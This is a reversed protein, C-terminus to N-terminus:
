RYAKRKVLHKYRDLVEDTVSKWSRNLTNAANAGAKKIQAPSSILEQLKAACAEVSNDILFGNENDIIITAITSDNILVSPTHLAAAEHVVIAWTDYISPFIFLDAAAYYKKLENRDSISGPFLVKDSLGKESVLAKLEEEAYGSGVFFMKFNLDKLLALTEVILRINKEWILQGVFLFVMENGTIQLEERAHMKIPEIPKSSDYDNGIPVVEVNGKFGYERITEEVSPQSIWVEDATEYFQILQKVMINALTKSHLTREFDDRYKSHFTAVLPIHQSRAVRHAMVGSSFPCHAHVLGFPINDMKTKITFDFAPIGLRYPKRGLIPLSAYRYVPYKEVNTYFPTSPAVVCVSQKKQHMWYAYQQVTLSVGDIIPPFSDNFIGITKLINSHM